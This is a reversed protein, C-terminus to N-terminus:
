KIKQSELLRPTIEAIEEKTYTGPIIQSEKIHELIIKGDKKLTWSHQFLCSFTRKAKKNKLLLPYMYTEPAYKNPLHLEVSKIFCEITQAAAFCHVKDERYEHIELTVADGESLGLSSLMKSKLLDIYKECATKKSKYEDEIKTIKDLTLNIDELETM